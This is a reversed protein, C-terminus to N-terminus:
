PLAGGRGRSPPAIGPLCIPDAGTTLAIQDASLTGAGEMRLTMSDADIAAVRTATLLTIDQDDYFGPPRLYVQEEDITRAMAALDERSIRDIEDFDWATLTTADNM